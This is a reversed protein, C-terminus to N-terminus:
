PNVVGGRGLTFGVAEHGDVEELSSLAVGNVSLGRGTIPASAPDVSCLNVDYLWVRYHGPAVGAVFLAVSGPGADQMKSGRFGDWEGYLSLHLPGYHHACAAEDGGTDLAESPQLPSVYTIQLPAARGPGTPGDDCSLLVVPISLLALVAAFRRRRHQSLVRAM